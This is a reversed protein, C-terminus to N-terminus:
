NKSHSLDKTTPIKEKHISKNLNDTNQVLSLEKAKEQSQNKEKNM